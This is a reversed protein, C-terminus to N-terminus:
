LRNKQKKAQKKAIKAARKAEKKAQKEISRMEDESFRLDCERCKFEYWIFKVKDGLSADCATFDFDKAEKSKSRVVKTMKTVKLQAGCVPCTHKLFRMYLVNGTDKKVAKIM